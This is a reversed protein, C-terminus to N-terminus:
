EAGSLPTSLRFRQSLSLPRAPSFPAPSGKKFFCARSSSRSVSFSLFSLSSLIRSLCGFINYRLQLFLVREKNERQEVERPLPRERGREADCKTGGELLARRGRLKCRREDLFFPLRRWARPPPWRCPFPSSQRHRRLLLEWLEEEEERREGKSAAWSAVAELTRGPWFRRRPARSAATPCWAAPSGPEQSRRRQKLPLPAM